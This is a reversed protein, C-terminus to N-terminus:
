IHATFNLTIDKNAAIILKIAEVFAIQKREGFTSFDINVQDGVGYWAGKRPFVMGLKEDAICPTIAIGWDPFVRLFDNLRGTRKNYVRFTSFKYSTVVFRWSIPPNDSFLILLKNLFSEYNKGAKSDKRKISDIQGNLYKRHSEVELDLSKIHPM